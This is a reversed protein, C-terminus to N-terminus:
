RNKIFRGTFNYSGLSNKIRLYYLGSSLSNLKISETTQNIEQQIVIQGSATYIEIISNDTQTHIFLEDSAPNPYFYNQEDYKNEIVIINSYEYQGDLDVPKLRYYNKGTLPQPDIVQYSRNIQSNSQTNIRQVRNWQQGDASREIEFHSVNIEESTTWRLHNQGAKPYGSLPDLFAVPLAAQAQFYVFGNGSFGVYLRGYLYPDGEMVKAEDYIGNPYTGIQEWTAGEDTSMFYGFVGNVKGQIFITPYNAGPAAKGVAVNLVEDTNTLETWNQGGDTSRFVGEIFSLAQEPGNCFLLHGAQNPVSVIKGNYSWAPLVSDYRIWNAGGDSTKFIHGAGWDYIYFTNALVRDATLVLKHFWHGGICCNGSNGPLTIQTWTNGKDTTYYPLRNGSPTWIINNNDNASVAIQGFLEGSEPLSGFKTWTAGGDESFGSGHTENDYCCFRHDDIIAVLFDPDTPSGDISWASNFRSSPQHIAPYQNPDDHLFLPRDWHATVSRGNPLPFLDNSVLHEQGVSKEEWTIDNDALDTSQWSGVGDAKWLKNPTSPDFLIEGISFWDSYSWALWPIGSATNTTTLFDWSPNASTANLTRYTENFGFSFIFLRDPNFPDVAIEGMSQNLNDRFVLTWTNNMYRQIGFSTGDTNQGSVYVRGGVDIEMDYFHPSPIGGIPRLTWTVGADDSEFMGAEDAFVYIRSTRNNVLTADKDFLIQRIGRSPAGDPVSSIKTWSQGGDLTRWLGDEVSGFYVIAANNPDVSLREGSLKSEDNNPPMDMTPFNTRTWTNGKDNSKYIGDFYALYAIQNDSPASVISLVGSFTNWYIDTPPLNDATVINQWDETTANWRYASGVDSRVFIPDGSPHIDMGTLWGGAGTKLTQWTGQAPSESYFFIALFFISFQLILKKM